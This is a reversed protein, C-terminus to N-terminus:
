AAVPTTGVPEGTVGFTVVNAVPVSGLLAVIAGLADAVIASANVNWVPLPVSVIVATVTVSAVPVDPPRLKTSIVSLAPDVTYPVTAFGPESVGAIVSVIFMVAVVVAVVYM